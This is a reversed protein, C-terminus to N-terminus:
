KSYHHFGGSSFSLNFIDSFQKLIDEKLFTNRLIIKNVNKRFPQYHLEPKKAPDRKKIFNTLNLKSQYQSKYVM